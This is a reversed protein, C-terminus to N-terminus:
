TKLTYTILPPQGSRKYNDARKRARKHRPEVQIKRNYDLQDYYRTTRSSYNIVTLAGTAATAAVATLAALDLNYKYAAWTAAATLVTGGSAVTGTPLWVEHVKLGTEYQTQEQQLGGVGMTQEDAYLSLYEALIESPTVPETTPVKAGKRALFEENRRSRDDEFAIEEAMSLPFINLTSGDHYGRPFHPITAGQRHDIAEQPPMHQQSVFITTEAITAPSMGFSKLAKACAQGDVAIETFPSLERDQLTGAYKIIPGELSM